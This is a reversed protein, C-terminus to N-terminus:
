DAQLRQQRELAIRLQEQLKRALEVSWSPGTASSTNRPPNAPTSEASPVAIEVQEIVVPM